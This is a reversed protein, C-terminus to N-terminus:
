APNGAATKMKQAFAVIRETEIKPECFDDPMKDSELMTKIMKRYVFNMKDMQFLGGLIGIASAHEVLTEPYLKEVYRQTDPPTAGGIFLGLNKTQLEGEHAKAFSVIDKNLKGAYVSGGIIVTDFADLDDTGDEVNRAQAGDGMAEHLLEAIQATAGYKSGYLILTNM